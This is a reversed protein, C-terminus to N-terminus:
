EYLKFPFVLSVIRGLFWAHWKIQVTGNSSSNPALPFLSIPNKATRSVPRQSRFPKMGWTAARVRGNYDKMNINRILIKYYLKALEVTNHLRSGIECLLKVTCSNMTTHPVILSNM